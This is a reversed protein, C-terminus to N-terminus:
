RKPAWKWVALAIPLGVLVTHVIPGTMISAPDTRPAWRDGAKGDPICDAPQGRLLDSGLYVRHSLTPLSGAGRDERRGPVIEAGSARLRRVSLDSAACSPKSNGLRRM